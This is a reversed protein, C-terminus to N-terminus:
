LKEMQSVSRNIVATTVGQAISEIIALSVSGFPKLATKVKSWIENEKIKAIFEHGAPTIFYISSLSFWNDDSSPHFAFNTVLYGSESLQIIHYFLEERSYQNLPSIDHMLEPCLEHFMAYEHGNQSKILVYTNEECFLMLDRICDPNLKM